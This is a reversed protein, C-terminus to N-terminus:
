QDVPSFMAVIERAVEPAYEELVFHSGNGHLLVLTPSSPRGAERYFVKVGSITLTHSSVAAANTATAAGSVTCILGTRILERIRHKM